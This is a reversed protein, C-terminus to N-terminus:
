TATRPASGKPTESSATASGVIRYLAGSADGQWIRVLGPDDPLEGRPRDILWLYDFAHRPFHALTEALLPENRARCGPARLLQTPDHSFRGADRYRLTLLQAGPTLWQDNVFTQRRVIAMSSLHETRDTHWAAQCPTTALVMVRTGPAIHPLAALQTDYHRDFMAYSVTQAGMRAVFFAVAAGAILTRGRAAVRPRLAVIAIALAFPVLRMDAYASSLLIRPLCVFTLGLLLAAFGLTPDFRRRPNWLGSLAVLVVVAASALDFEEWRDRLVSYIWRWKFTWHFWDGTGRPAEAGRWPLLLLAPPALPLVALSARWWARWWGAGEKRERVYEAVWCLMGLTGWAFSHCLWIAFGVLLYLRARLRLHGTRALRLWFAFAILMLAMALAFNVFGFQFPYSYALPLAFLATAPVRGHAERAVLLLGAVTLPPIALVILKTGLELGFLKSLPVILLDVGLNGIIGWRFGYYRDLYPAGDLEVRYRGMHGLLDTLPPLPPWVLPIAALLMMAYAFRRTEWWGLPRRSSAPVDIM